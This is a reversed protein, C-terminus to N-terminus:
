SWKAGLYQENASDGNSLLNKVHLLDKDGPTMTLDVAHVDPVTGLKILKPDNRPPKSNERSSLWLTSRM